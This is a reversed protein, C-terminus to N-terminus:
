VTAVQDIGQLYFAVGATGAVKIVDTPNVGFRYTEYGNFGSIPFSYSIIGYESESIAGAPVVYVYIVGDTAKMNVAIVSVLYHDDATFLTTGTGFAVDASLQAIARREIAAM